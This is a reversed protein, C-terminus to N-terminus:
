MENFKQIFYMHSKYYAKEAMQYFNELDDLMRHPVCKICFIFVTGDKGPEPSEVWKTNSCKEQYCLSGDCLFCRNHNSAETRPTVKINCASCIYPAFM